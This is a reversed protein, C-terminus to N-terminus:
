VRVFLSNTRAFFRQLPFTTEIKSPPYSKFAKLSLTSQWTLAKTSVWYNIGLTISVDPADAYLGIAAEGTDCGDEVRDRFINKIYIPYISNQLFVHFFTM